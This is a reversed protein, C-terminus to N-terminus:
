CVCGTKFDKDVMFDIPSLSRGLHELIIEFYRGGVKKEVNDLVMEMTPGM